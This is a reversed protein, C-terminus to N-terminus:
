LKFFICCNVIVFIYLIIIKCILIICCVFMFIYQGAASSWVYSYYLLDVVFSCIYLFNYIYVCVIHIHAYMCMYESM